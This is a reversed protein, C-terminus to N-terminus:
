YSFAISPRPEDFEHFSFIDMNRWSMLMVENFHSSDHHFFLFKRSKSLNQRVGKLKSKM